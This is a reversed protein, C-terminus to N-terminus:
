NSGLSTDKMQSPSWRKYKLEGSLASPQFDKQTILLCSRIRACSLGSENQKEFCINYVIRIQDTILIHRQHGTGNCTPLSKTVINKSWSARAEHTIQM